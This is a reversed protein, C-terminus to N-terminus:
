LARKVSELYTFIDNNVENNISKFIIIWITVNIIDRFTLKKDSKILSWGTLGGADGWWFISRLINVNIIVEKRIFIIKEYNRWNYLESQAKEIYLFITITIIIIPQNLDYNM